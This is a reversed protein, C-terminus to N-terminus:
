QLDDRYHQNVQFWVRASYGSKYKSNKLIKIAFNGEGEIFGSVWNPKPIAKTQVKPRTVAITDPFYKLLTDSIDGKNMASKINFITQINDLSTIKDNCLKVADCFM